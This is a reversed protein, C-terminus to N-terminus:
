AYSDGKIALPRLHREPIRRSVGSISYVIYPSISQIESLGDRTMLKGSLISISVVKGITLAREERNFSFDDDFCVVDGVKFKPFM